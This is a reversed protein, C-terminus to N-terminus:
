PAPRRGAAPQCLPVGPGLDPLSLLQGQEAETVVLGLKGAPDFACNTPNRGPLDRVGVQQGGADYIKIQGSGYVAAYLRGDAGLALGDPGPAGIIQDAWVHTNRWERRQPDWDGIWLRQRYTEALILSRGEDRFLLGNPFFLGSAITSVEGDPSLCCVYGTPEHRSDGPCTFVLNGAADFALDNPKNFPRGDLQEVVSEVAGTRPDLRRIANHQSDCFWLRDERDVAAGNPAGGTAVRTLKGQQWRVLGGGKLEVCWLAGDATFVPGEPFRLGSALIRVPEPSM